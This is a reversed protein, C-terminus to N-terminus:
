KRENKELLTLRDELTDLLLFLEKKQEATIARCLENEVENITDRMRLNAERGASTLRIRKLRADKEDSCRTILGNKEMLQLITTVSSRRIGFEREIDEGTKVLKEAQRTIKDYIKQCCRAADESACDRISIGMTITRIDLHQQDIMDITQLIEGTNIM